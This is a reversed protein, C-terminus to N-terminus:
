NTFYLKLYKRLNVRYTDFHLTSLNTNKVFVFLKFNIDMYACKLRPFKLPTIVKQFFFKNKFFKRINPCLIPFYMFSQYGVTVTDYGRVPNEHSMSKDFM